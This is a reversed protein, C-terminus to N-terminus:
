IPFILSITEKLGDTHFWPEELALDGWSDRIQQKDSFSQENVNRGAKGGDLEINQNTKCMCSTLLHAPILVYSQTGDM